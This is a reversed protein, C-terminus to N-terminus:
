LINIEIFFWNTGARRECQMQSTEGGRPKGKVGFTAVAVNRAGPGRGSRGIRRWSCRAVHFM